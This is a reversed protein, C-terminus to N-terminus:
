PFPETSRSSPVCQTTKKKRAADPHSSLSRHDNLGCISLKGGSREFERQMGNLKEMVTHDVLRAESLDITVNPQVGLNELCRKLPLWNSFVAAGRVIVAFDHEAHQRVELNARFLAQPPVGHCVHCLLKVMIGFGLGSLLDSALGAVATSVLILFQEPGIRWANIFIKPSALQVGTFVLMAGLASLPIRQLVSPIVSVCAALFLSHFTNALRTRAGNDISARSRVIESIMPLGGVLAALCNAVGVALLDRNLNTKRQWPDLLDVAKGSVLTALTGVVAFMLVHKWGALQQLASFDPASFTERVDAPIKILCSDDVHYEHGNFAYSHPRDLEFWIGLPVAILLVLMPGPVVRAFTRKLQASGFMVLLSIGGILAIQPNVGSAAPDLLTGPLEAIQRLIPGSRGAVGLVVYIQRTIIIVGVSALIGQVVSRPFFEALLGLRLLGFLVQLGGAAVASALAMQYGTMKESATLEALTRAAGGSGLETVAGAAIVILAAAPGKITLESNSIFPCVLGGIIATVVGAIPPYGSAVSIGLCLPLAILFVFFGAVADHRWNATAPRLLEPNTAPPGTSAARTEL